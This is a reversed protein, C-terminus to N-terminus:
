LTESGAMSKERRRYLIREEPSWLSLSATGTLMLTAAASFLLRSTMTVGFPSQQSSLLLALCLAASRGMLGLGALLCCCSLALSWSPHTQFLGFGTLTLIGSALIIPRLVLPLTKGFLFKAWHYMATQQSSDAKMRCSVVLWDRGFGILLPAMFILAAVFTFPPMIVPLLAMGVLGMQFGAIIRAYPRPQLAVLPLGQKQRLWLGFIFPYYALGVLLYIAPLKGLSVALLSAVLLGAADTVTDLRKGLETERRLTRAVFGDLLDTLAIGLYILGPAWPTAEPTGFVRPQVVMPLFGTLTIIASARLLTLWNAAGLTPLLQEEEGRRHNAGLHRCLQHQLHAAVALGPLLALGTAPHDRFFPWCFFIAALWPSFLFVAVLWSQHRLRLLARERGAGGQQCQGRGEDFSFSLNTM